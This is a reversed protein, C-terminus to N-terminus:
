ISKNVPFKLLEYAAVFNVELLGLFVGLATTDLTDTLQGYHTVFNMQQTMLLILFFLFLISSFLASLFIFLSCQM